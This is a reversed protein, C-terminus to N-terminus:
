VLLPGFAIMGGQRRWLGAGAPRHQALLRGYRRHGRWALLNPHQPTMPLTHRAAFFQAMYFAIDAYTAMDAFYEQGALLLEMRSYYNEIGLRAQMWEPSDVPDPTGRLGM